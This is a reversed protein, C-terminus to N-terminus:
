CICWPTVARNCNLKVNVVILSYKNITLSYTSNIEYDVNHLGTERDKKFNMAKQNFCRKQDRKRNLGHIHRFTNTSDTNLQGPRYIQIHKSKLRTYLEDDEMGWGWYRNSLGNINKFQQNSILLIGGIFTQYHYRPHLNPSSVHFVNNEPYGYSINNNLPLLDVDHMAIYDCDSNNATVSFKFGVNILSGRNFRYADVQNIIYINHRIGQRNIFNTIYPVFELLEEFRDRFPVIVCLSHSRSKIYDVHHVKGTSSVKVKINLFFSTFEAPRRQRTVM